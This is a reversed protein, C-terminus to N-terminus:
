AAAAERSGAVPDWVELRAYARGRRDRGATVLTRARSWTGCNLYRAPPKAGALPVDAAVHTHGCVYFPVASEHRALITHVRAMVGPLTAALTKTGPSRLASRVTRVVDGRAGAAASRELEALLPLPLGDISGAVPSCGAVGAVGWALPPASFAAGLARRVLGGRQALWADVVVGPPRRGLGRSGGTALAALGGFRNLAHHQQGHEALLLGPVHLLWPHVRAGGVLADLAAAVPALALDIDHNGPVVDIAVGATTARRLAAFVAPHAAAIRQLGAAATTAGRGSANAAVLDFCDGLLVLRAHQGARALEDFLAALAADDGFPDDVGGAGLHLDALLTLERTM